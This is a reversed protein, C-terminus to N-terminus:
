PLNRYKELLNWVEGSKLESTKYQHYVLQNLWDQRNPEAAENIKDITTSMPYAAAMTSTICPIGMIIGKVPVASNYTVIFRANALDQDITSGHDFKIRSLVQNTSVDIVPQDPKERVVIPLDIKKKLEDIMKETWERSDPFLYKTAESPPLFLVYKGRKANWPSLKYKEKFFTNWRDPPEPVNKNWTFGNYSIRMWEADADRSNYGRELYAHDVYIFKKNNELCWKYILGDGRIMGAFVIESAKINIKMNDYFRNTPLLNKEGPYSKYLHRVIRCHNQNQPNIYFAIMRYHRLSGRTETRGRYISLIGLYKAM